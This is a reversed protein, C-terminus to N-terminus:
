PHTDSQIAQAPKGRYGHSGRQGTTGGDTQVIILRQKAFLEIQGAFGATIGKGICLLCSLVPRNGGVIEDCCASATRRRGSSWNRRDRSWIRGCRRGNSRIVNRQKPLANREAH